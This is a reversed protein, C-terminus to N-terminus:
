PKPPTPPTPPKPTQPSVLLLQKGKAKTKLVCNLKNEKCMMMLLQEPSVSKVHVTVRKQSPTRKDIQLKYGLSDAIVKFLRKLSANRLRVSIKRKSTHHISKAQNAPKKSQSVTNELTLHLKTKKVQWNMAQKFREGKNAAKISLKIDRHCCLTKLHGKLTITKDNAKLSLQLRAAGIAMGLLQQRQFSGAVLFRMRRKSRRTKGEKSHILTAVITVERKPGKQPLAALRKQIARQAQRQQTQEQLAQLLARAEVHKGQKLLTLAKAYRVAVSRQLQQELTLPAALASSSFLGLCLILVHKM